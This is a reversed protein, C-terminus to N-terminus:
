RGEVLTKLRGLDEVMGPVIWARAEAPLPDGEPSRLTFRLRTLGPRERRLEWHNIYRYNMAPISVEEAHTILDPSAVHSRSSLEITMDDFVCRHRKGLRDPQPDYEVSRVGGVWEPIRASDSLVSYVRDIPAAIEIQGSSSPDDDPPFPIATRPPVDPITSRIPSLDAYRYGVRGIAPYEDFGESWRLAAADGGGSDVWGFFPKTVAIYERRAITNKLLRHAVILELGSPKTIHAVKLESVPGHHVIFKLGLDSAGRCAGCECIADRGIVRLRLHFNTYMGVCQGVVDAGDMAEGRRYFLVADGEIEALALDTSNSAVIVELLENIIHSAHVVETQTVFETYGTIDPIFITASPSM